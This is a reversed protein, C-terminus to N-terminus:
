TLWQIHRIVHKGKGKIHYCVQSGKLKSHKGQAMENPKEKNQTCRQM